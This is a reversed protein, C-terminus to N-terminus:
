LYVLSGNELNLCNCNVGSLKFLTPKLSDNELSDTRGVKAAFIVPLFTTQGKSRTFKIWYSSFEALLDGTSAAEFQRRM